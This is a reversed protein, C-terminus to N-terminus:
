AARGASPFNFIGTGTDGDACESLSQGVLYITTNVGPTIAAFAGTATVGLADGVHIVGSAIFKSVGMTLVNGTRGAAPNNQIIGICRDTVAAAIVTNGPNATDQKVARFQSTAMTATANFSWEFLPLETAM